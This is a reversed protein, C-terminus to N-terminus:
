GEKDILHIDQYTNAAYPHIEWGTVYPHNVGVEEHYYIVAYPLEEALIEQARRYIDISEDSDPPTRQGRELLEDLEPNAYYTFGAFAGESHFQRFMARDPDLQGVWGWIFMDYNDTDMVRALFAGREEITVDVDIGVQGLEYLLIEAIRMYAPMEFTHLRIEFGDPYGAEALLERARERDHEDVELDPHSWPMYPMIPGVAPEGMGEEVEEVMAQRPILHSIVQRVRADDLPEATTNFGLYTHGTGPTRQLVYDPDDELRELELPPIGHHYMDIEGAEFALLRTADEPITRFEVVDVKARGGWYDGFARLVMRDDRVWSEFVMPGTGVPERTFEPDDAVDYPVIPMRAINNLLFTNVESLHFVVTYPDPAEVRDIDDYLPRNPAENDPDLVWEYTYKVDQSTFERGHHFQVGERLEFTLTLGDDSFEWDVALRPYLGLDTGFTVLPEMMANIRMFSPSSVDIRPDLDVAEAYVGVVLKTEDAVKRAVEAMLEAATCIDVTFPQAEVLRPALTEGIGSVEEFDEELATNLIDLCDQCTGNDNQHDVCVYWLGLRRARLVGAKRPRRARHDGRGAIDEPSAAPRGWRQRRWWARRYNRLCRHPITHRPLDGTSEKEAFLQQYDAALRVEVTEAASLM